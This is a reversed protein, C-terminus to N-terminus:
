LGPRVLSGLRRDIPGLGGFIQKKIRVTEVECKGRGWGVLFFIDEVDALKCYM